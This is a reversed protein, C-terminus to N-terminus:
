QEKLERLKDILKVAQHEATEQDEAEHIGALFPGIASVIETTDYFDLVIAATEKLTENTTPKPTAGNEILFDSYSKVITQADGGDRRKSIFATVSQSNLKYRCIFTDTLDEFGFTDKLSLKISGPVMNEQPFLSLEPIQTTETLKIHTTVNKALETMAELLIPSEASGLAEIYYKGHIFYLANTTKYAFQMAPVNEVDARRQMSYVSFANKLTAMDFLYLEMWLDEDTESAFRQTYLHEFGADIYFPAKGNIKEYLNGAEYVQQASLERFGTPLLTSLNSDQKSRSQRQNSPLAMTADLGFRTMDPDAQEILVAGAFVSLVALLFISVASELRRNRGPVLSM